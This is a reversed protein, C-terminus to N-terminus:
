PACYVLVIAVIYKVLNTYDFAGMERAIFGATFIIACWVYLGSLRWSKYHSGYTTNSVTM